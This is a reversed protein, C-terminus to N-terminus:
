VSLERRKLEENLQEINRYLEELEEDYKMNRLKADLLITLDNELTELEQSSMNLLDRKMNNVM